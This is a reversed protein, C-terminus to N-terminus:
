PLPTFLELRELPKGEDDTGSIILVTGSALLLATHSTRPGALSLSATVTLSATDLLEADAHVNAGDDGGVLLLNTGVLTATHRARPKSLVGPYLRVAGDLGIRIADATAKGGSDVGGTVLISGDPLPTAAHWTRMLAGDLDLSVFTETAAVYREAVPDGALGGGYILAATRGFQPTVTHGARAAALTGPVPQLTPDEKRAILAATSVPAGHADSGGACLIASELTACPAEARAFPPDLSAVTTWAGMIGQWPDFIELSALVGQPAIGGFAAVVTDTVEFLSMGGRAVGLDAVQVVEHLYENYLAAWPQPTGQADVGGAILAGVGSFSSVGVGTRAPVLSAPATGFSGVRAVYIRLLADTAYLRFPPTAGRALVAGSDDLAEVTVSTVDGSADLAPLELTKFGGELSLEEQAPPTANTVRLRTAGAFTDQGVPTVIEITIVPTRSCGGMVWALM